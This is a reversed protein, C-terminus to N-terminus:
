LMYMLLVHLNQILNRQLGCLAGRNVSYACTIGANVYDQLTNYIRQTLVTELYTSWETHKKELVHEILM